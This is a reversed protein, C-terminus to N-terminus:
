FGGVECVKETDRDFDELGDLILNQAGEDEDEIGFSRLDRWMAYAHRSTDGDPVLVEIQYDQEMYNDTEGAFEAPSPMFDREIVIPGVGDAEPVYRLGAVVFATYTSLAVTVTYTTEWWVYPTERALYADLDTTFQRDYEDYREGGTRDEYLAEQDPYWHTAELDEFTCTMPGAIFLGTAKAPDKDGDLEVTAQEEATLPDLVGQDEAFDLEGLADRMEEDTATEFNAFFWRLSGDVAEPAPEPHKCAVLVALM